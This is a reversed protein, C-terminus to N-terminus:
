YVSIQGTSWFLIYRKQEESSSVVRLFAHSVSDLSDGGLIYSELFPRTFSVHLQNVKEGGGSDCEPDDKPESRLCILDIKSGDTILIEEMCESDQAGCGISNSDVFDHFYLNRLRNATNIDDSSNLDRDYYAPSNFYFIFSKGGTKALDFALGYSSVWNFPILEQNPRNLQANTLTPKRGQSALTQARKGQLAIEQSLNQLKVGDSFDRYNFLVTAAITTFIGLVVIVEIFTMGASMKINEPLVLKKIKNKKFFGFM